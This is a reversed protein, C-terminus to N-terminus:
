DPYLNYKLCIEHIEPIGKFTAIEGGDKYTCKIYNQGKVIQWKNARAKSIERLEPRTYGMGTYGDRLLWNCADCDHNKRAKPNTEKIVEM